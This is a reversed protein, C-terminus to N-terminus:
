NRQRDRVSTFILLWPPREVAGSGSMRVLAWRGQLLAGHLRFRLHGAEYGGADGALNWEGADWVSVPEGSLPSVATRGRRKRGVSPVAPQEVAIRRAKPDDPMGNIVTWRRMADDFELLLDFREQQSLSRYVIFKRGNDV